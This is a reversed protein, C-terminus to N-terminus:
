FDVLKNKSRQQFYRLWGLSVSASVGIPLILLPMHTFCFGIIVLVTITSLIYIAQKRAFITELHVIDVKHQAKYTEVTSQFDSLFTRFSDVNCFHYNAGINFKKGDLFGLTFVIGNKGEYIYYYKLDSFPVRVIQDAEIMLENISLKATATRKIRHKNLLFFTIALGISILTAISPSVIDGPIIVLILLCFIIIGLSLSFLLYAIGQKTYEFAYEKM